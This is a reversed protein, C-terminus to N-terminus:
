ADFGAKFTRYQYKKLSLVDERSYDFEDEIRKLNRKGTCCFVYVTPDCAFADPALDGVYQTTAHFSIRRHFWAREIEHVGEPTHWANMYTRAEDFLIHLGGPGYVGVLQMLKDCDSEGSPTYYVDLRASLKKAVDFLDSAHPIHRFNEARRCDVVLYPFKTEAKQAAIHHLALTTKGSRPCGLYWYLGLSM